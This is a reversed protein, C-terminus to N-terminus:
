ITSDTAKEIFRQRSMNREWVVELGPSERMTVEDVMIRYSRTTTDKIMGARRFSRSITSSMAMQEYAQILKTLQDNLSDDGFESAATAKLHKFSGFFIFDLAQFLNMTHDPFTLAIINNEGFIRLIRESKHPLAFDILLIAPQDVFEPRSRLYSVYPILVGSIYKYFLTEDLHAPNRRRIM